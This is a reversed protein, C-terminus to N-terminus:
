FCAYHSLPKTYLMFMADIIVAQPLWPLSSVIVSPQASQYRHHLKETWHSKNSKNPYGDEDALARPLISYQEEGSNFSVRNENCWQLRRRLCKIVQKAEQEKPTMRKKKARTSSMTLLKQRRLPANIHSPMEILRTTIYQKYAVIGVQRFTMMDVSQEPTAVQGSFINVVGRNEQQVSVLKSSEILGCMTQINEEWHQTCPTDDIINIHHESGKFKEPFLIHMLNKFAKIRCNFFLSTKQLYAQTPHTVAGKMDKNICMEHAEDFAVAHFRRGTVNVTFGGEKLCQIVHTPFSKLDALHRPIIREYTDRDFAAFLPAMRKLGALRLSWNSGRVGLYLMIYSYCNVFVFDAWLSWVKDKKAMQDVFEKFNTLSSTEQLLEESRLMLQQPSRSEEIATALICKVNEVLHSPDSNVLYTHLMERYLAEWVQLLFCHTRKFNYCSELSKLTSSRFGCSVALEKLGFNYYVKMLVPQYNKLTHWDGPFIILKQFATRYQQKINMLHQYTKGDGVLVVWGDQDKINFQELLNEAVICMTEDSDPNENLLEMYHIQSPQIKESDDNGLFCRMDSLTCHLDQYRHAVYKLTVYSFLKRSMSLQEDDEEENVDFDEITLSQTLPRITNNSTTDKALSSTLHRVAVTRPRKPGIKGVKHPSNSPSQEFARKPVTNSTGNEPDTSQPLHHQDQESITAPPLISTTTCRNTQHIELLPSPQVIQVTTGHYSRQQNGCYVASYSQLIDFNDVSAVTFAAPSLENWLSCTRQNDAHQTVFRDHTDPSSTCGLRNLIRLLQRSGGCMEVVDALLDHILLPKTPNTCFQLTNLLNFIRVKKLHKSIDNQRGLVPHKRERVTTTISNVFDLLLPNINQLENDIDLLQPDNISSTSQRNIEEHILDNVLYSANHLIAVKDSHKVPTIHKVSTDEFPINASLAWSLTVLLDGGKRYLITGFKMHVCKYLMYPNLHTILENLLWKGTFLLCSDGTDISVRTSKISGILETDYAQLFVKCAWPLLIAKDMLLNRAVYIVAELIAKTLKDSNEDNYKSVWEEISQQLQTNSGHPSKLSKIISCHTKYCTFCLYDNPNIVVSQGTTHSLHESVKMADPSHRCFNTGSKPKAGCSSCLESHSACITSYAKNYCQRCLVFPEDTSETNFIEALKDNTAFMPNILRKYTDNECHPNSCMKVPPLSSSSSDLDRDPVVSKWSPIHHDQQGYRKAELLHRRCVLSSDDLPKGLHKALYTREIDGWTAYRSKQREKDGCLVCSQTSNEAPIANDNEDDNQQTQVYLILIM